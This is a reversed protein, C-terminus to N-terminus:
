SREVSSKRSKRSSPTESPELATWGLPFGMLWEVWTPNLSGGIQDNLNGMGHGQAKKAAIYEPTHAPMHDRATPTYFRVVKNLPRSNSPLTDPSAPAGKWDRASPTPWVRHPAPSLSDHVAGALSWGHTGKIASPKPKTDRNQNPSAQPTPWLKVQASLKPEGRSNFKGDTRDVADDAVPTQWLTPWSGSGTGATLPALPPLPFVIGSRMMGSRLSSGSCSM